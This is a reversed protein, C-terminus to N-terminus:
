AKLAALPDPEYCSLGNALLKRLLAQAKPDRPHPEDADVVCPPDEWPKLNLNDYQVSYAASRAMDFFTEEKLLANLRQAEAPDFRNSKKSTCHEQKDWRHCIRDGTGGERL